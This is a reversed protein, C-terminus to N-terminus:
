VDDLANLALGAAAAAAACVAKQELDAGTDGSDDGVGAAGV